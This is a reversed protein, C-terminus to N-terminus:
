INYATESQNNKPKENSRNTHLNATFKLKGVLAPKKSFLRATINFFGKKLLLM